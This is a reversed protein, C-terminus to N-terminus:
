SVAGPVRTVKIVVGPAAPEPDVYVLRHRERWDNRQPDQQLRTTDHAVLQGPPMRSDSYPQLMDINATVKIGDLLHAGAESVMELEWFFQCPLWTLKFDFQRGGLVAGFRIESRDTQEPGQIINQAM